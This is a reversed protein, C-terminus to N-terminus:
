SLRNVSTSPMSVVRVRVGAAALLTQAELAAYTRSYTSASDFSEQAEVALRTSALPQEAWMTEVAARVEARKVAIATDAELEARLGELSDAALARPAGGAGAGTDLCHPLWKAASWRRDAPRPCCIALLM